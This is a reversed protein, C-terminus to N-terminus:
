HPFNAEELQPEPPELVTEGQRCQHGPRWGPSQQVWRGKLMSGAVTWLLQKEESFTRRARRWGAISTPHHPLLLAPKGRYGQAKGETKGGPCHCAGGLSQLFRKHKQSHSKVEQCLVFSNGQDQLFEICEPLPLSTPARACGRANAQVLTWRSHHRDLQRCRRLGVEDKGACRRLVQSTEASLM